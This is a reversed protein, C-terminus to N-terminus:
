RKSRAVTFTGTAAVNMVGGIVARRSITTTGASAPLDFQGMTEGYRDSYGENQIPAFGGFPCRVVTSGGGPPADANLTLRLVADKGTGVLTGSATVPITQDLDGRCEGLPGASSTIPGTLTITGSGSLKRDKDSKIKLDKITVKLTNAIVPPFREDSTGVSSITWGDQITFTVSAHGIGRNSVSELQVTGRDGDESGATYRFTAPAKQKSGAPDITKVGDLKAEVPKDLENGEVKHKVKATVTTVSDKEVDGGEPSVLVAICKGSRWFKEFEPAASQAALRILLAGGQGNATIDVGATKANDDVKIRISGNFGEDVGSGSKSGDSSFHDEHGTFAM